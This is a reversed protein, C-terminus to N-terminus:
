DAPSPAIWRQKAKWSLLLLAVFLFPVMWLTLPSGSLIDSLALLGATRAIGLALNTLGFRYLPMRAIGAAVPVLLGFGHMVKGITLLTYPHRSFQATVMPLLAQLRHFIRWRLVASRGSWGICYYGGDCILGCLILGFFCSTFDLIGVSILCGAALTTAVGDILVLPLLAWLGYHALWSGLDQAIEISFM